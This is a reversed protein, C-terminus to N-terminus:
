GSFINFSFGNSLLYLKILIVGLSNSIFLGLVENVINSSFLLIIYIVFFLLVLLACITFNYFLLYAANFGNLFLNMLSFLNNADKERMSNLSCM